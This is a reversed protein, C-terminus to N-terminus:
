VTSPVRAGAIIQTVIVFSFIYGCVKEIVSDVRDQMAQVSEGGPCSIKSFSIFMPSEKNLFFFIGMM